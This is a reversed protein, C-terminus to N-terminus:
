MNERSCKQWVVFLLMWVIGSFWMWLVATFVTLLGSLVLAVGSWGTLYGGLQWGFPLGYRSTIALPYLSFVLCASAALQWAQDLSVSDSLRGCVVVAPVLFLSNLILLRRGSEVTTRRVSLQLSAHESVAQWLRVHLARGILLMAIIVPLIWAFAERPSAFQTPLLLLLGACVTVDHHIARMSLSRVVPVLFQPLGVLLCIGSMALLLMEILGIASASEGLVALLGVLFLANVALISCVLSRWALPSWSRVENSSESLRYGFGALRKGLDALDFGGKTWSLTLTNFQLSVQASRCGEVSRAVREVLWVCGLCSMGAVTLTLRVHTADLEAKAQLVRLAEFESQTLDGIPHGVRDQLAYYTDLGESRILEHVHLCGGCCFEGVGKEPAFSTGCHKCKLKM